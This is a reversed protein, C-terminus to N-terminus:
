FRRRPFTNCIRTSQYVELKGPTTSREWSVVLVGTDPNAELHLNTPPSLAICFPFQLNFTLALVFCKAQPIISVHRGRREERREREKKFSDPFIVSTTSYFWSPCFNESLSNKIIGSKEISNFNKEGECNMFITSM